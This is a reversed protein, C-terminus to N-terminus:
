LFLPIVGIERRGEPLYNVAVICRGYRKGLTAIMAAPLDNCCYGSSLIIHAKPSNSWEAWYSKLAKRVERISSCFTKNLQPAGDVFIEQFVLYRASPFSTTSTMSAEAPKLNFGTYEPSYWKDLLQQLYQRTKLFEPLQDYAYGLLLTEHSAAFIHANPMVQQKRYESGSSPHLTDANTISKEM